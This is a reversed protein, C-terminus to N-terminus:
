NAPRLRKDLLYGSIGGILIPLLAYIPFMVIGLASQGDASLDLSHHAWALFAFAPIVAILLSLPQRYLLSIALLSGWAIANFASLLLAGALGTDTYQTLWDMGGPVRALYPLLIGILAVALRAKLM